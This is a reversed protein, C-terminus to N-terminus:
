IEYGLHRKMYTSPSVGRYQKFVTSFYKPDAFGCMDAVSEVSYFGSELHEAAYSIRLENLYDLPRRGVSRKFIRRFYTDSVGIHEALTTVSLAPDMYSSYMLQLAPKLKVSAADLREEESERVLESIIRYFYSMARAYYGSERSTWVRYLEAFATEFFPRKQVEFRLLEAPLDGEAEFNVGYLREEGAELRYGCGKPFYLVDGDEAEVVRDSLIFRSNGEVRYSLAFSKKPPIMVDRRGWGLLHVSLLKVTFDSNGFFM